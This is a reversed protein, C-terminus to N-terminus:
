SMKWKVEVLSPVVMKSLAEIDQKLPNYLVTFRHHIDRSWHEQSYKHRNPANLVALTKRTTPLPTFRTFKTKILAMKERFLEVTQELLRPDYSSLRIKVSDKKKNKEEKTDKSIDKNTVIAM